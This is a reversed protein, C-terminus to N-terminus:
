STLARVVFLCSEPLALKLLNNLELLTPKTPKSYITLLSRWPFYVAQRQYICQVPSAFSAPTTTTQFLIPCRLSSRKSRVKAHQVDIRAQGGGIQSAAKAADVRAVMSSLACNQVAAPALNHSMPAHLGAFFILDVASLATATM